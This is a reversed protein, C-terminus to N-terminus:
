NTFDTIKRCVPGKYSTLSQVPLLLCLAWMLEKAQMRGTRRKRNQLMDLVVTAGLRRYQRRKRSKNKEGASFLTFSTYRACKILTKRWIQLSAYIYNFRFKFRWLLSGTFPVGVVVTAVRFSLPPKVSWMSRFVAKVIIEAFLSEKYSTMWTTCFRWTASPSSLVLAWMM